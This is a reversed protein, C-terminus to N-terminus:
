PPLIGGRFCVLPSADNRALLGIARGIVITTDAYDVTRELECDVAGLARAFVPAGTSLTIWDEPDFRM